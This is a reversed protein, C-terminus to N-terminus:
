KGEDRLLRRRQGLTQTKRAQRKLYDKKKELYSKGECYSKLRDFCADSSRKRAVAKCRPDRFFGQAAPGPLWSHDAEWRARRAAADMQAAEPHKAFYNARAKDWKQYGTKRAELRELTDKDYLSPDIEQEVPIHYFEDFHQPVKMVQKYISSLVERGQGSPDLQAKQLLDAIYMEEDHRLQTWLLYMTYTEQVASHQKGDDRESMDNTSEGERPGLQRGIHHWTALDLLENGRISQYGPQYFGGECNRFLSALANITRQLKILDNFASSLVMKDGTTDACYEHLALTFISQVLDWFYHIAIPSRFLIARERLLNFARNNDNWNNPILEWAFCLARCIMEEQNDTFVHDDPSCAEISDLMTVTVFREIAATRQRICEPLVIVLFRGGVLLSQYTGETPLTGLLVQQYQAFCVPVDSSM